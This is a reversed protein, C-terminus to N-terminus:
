EKVKGHQLIVLRDTFASSSKNNENHFHNGIFVSEKCAEGTIIVSEFKGFRIGSVLAPDSVPRSHFKGFIINPQSQSNDSNHPLIMSGALVDGHTSKNIEPFHTFGFKDLEKSSRNAQLFALNAKIAMPSCACIEKLEQDFHWTSNELSFNWSNHRYPTFHCIFDPWIRHKLGYIFHGVKNSALSFRFHRGALHKVRFGISSGGICCQLALGVSEETLPFSASSFAVVLFFEKTSASPSFHVTSGFRARVQAEVAQGPSFDWHLLGEM